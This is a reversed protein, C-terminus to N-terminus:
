AAIFTLQGMVAGFQERIFADVATTIPASTTKGNLVEYLTVTSVGVTGANNPVTAAFQAVTTDALRVAALFLTKRSKETQPM